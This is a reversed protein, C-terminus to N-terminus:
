NHTASVVRDVFSFGKLGATKCAIRFVEDCIFQPEIYAMHFIHAAGIRESKFIWRRAGLLNYVKRGDREYEIRVDSGAEDLADIIPLV